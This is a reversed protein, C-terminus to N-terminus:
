LGLDTISGKIKEEEEEKEEEKGGQQQVRIRKSRLTNHIIKKQIFTPNPTQNPFTTNSSPLSVYLLSSM